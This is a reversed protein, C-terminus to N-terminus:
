VQLVCAQVSLLQAASVQIPCVQLLEIVVTGPVLGQSLPQAALVQEVVVQLLPMEVTEPM